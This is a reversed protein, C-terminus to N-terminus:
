RIYKLVLKRIGQRFGSVSRRKITPDCFNFVPRSFLFLIKLLIKELLLPFAMRLFLLRFYFFLQMTQFFKKMEKHSAFVEKICPSEFFSSVSELDDILLNHELCIEHLRTGPYPYFYHCKGFTLRLELNLNLTDWLMEKTEFPFGVINYSCVQIKYKKIIAVARKIVENSHKRNLVYTRLWENGSELGFELSVCGASKLCGVVNDEISEVRGHCHFPLNIEKKYLECFDFLWKKDLTFIDDFFIIKKTQPYLLLNNAIIKIAQRPSHFRVYKHKNEYIQRLSHNCCYNCSYPCGRSLIMSFCDGNGQIINGCDFLSYDPLSLQDIDQLPSIYNKIIGSGSKFYFSPAYLYDEKNDLRRCLEKLPLEGEGVCIGDIEPFDKFVEEKVLSSHVGGAIILGKYFRTEELFYRAYKKQNNTFSLGILDPQEEKRLTEAATKCDSEDVLHTLSVRHKEKKLTGILYALGHHFNPYLGTHIDFYM